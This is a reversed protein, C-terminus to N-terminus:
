RSNCVQLSPYTILLYNGAALVYVDGYVRKKLKRYADFVVAHDVRDGNMDFKM